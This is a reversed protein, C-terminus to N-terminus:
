HYLEFVGTQENKIEEMRICRWNKNKDLYDWSVYKYYKGDKLFKKNIFFSVKPTTDIFGNNRIATGVDIEKRGILVISKMNGGDWLFWEKM